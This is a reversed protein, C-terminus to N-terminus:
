IGPFHLYIMEYHRRRFAAGDVPNSPFRYKLQTLRRCCSCGSRARGLPLEDKRHIHVHYSELKTQCAFVSSSAVVIALAMMLIKFELVTYYKREVKENLRQLCHRQAYLPWFVCPMAFKGHTNQKHSAIGIGTIMVIGHHNCM